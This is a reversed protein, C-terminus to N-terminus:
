KLPTPKVDINYDWADFYLNKGDLEVEGRQFDAPESRLSKKPPYLERGYDLNVVMRYADQHGLYYERVKEDDSKRRGYSTDVVIWGWPEVYIEAWDHMNVEGPLMQWGSQWRAPIGAARALTIFTLSQVGCDGKHVSLCKSVISPITCYEDEFAYRINANIWHWILRAKALENREDGVIKAALQKVEPTFVIHPPREDLYRQPFDAPLPKVAEDSINPYDAYCIYEFTESFTTDKTPDDITAEFYTTRQTEDKSPAILPNAPSTSIMKVDRQRPYDQPFPLWVRLQSGKQAGPTNAPVTISYTVHYRIPDVYRQGTKEAEAIFEALHAELPFKEKTSASQRRQKAESSLQYLNSPESGFVMLQGDIVRTTLTKQSSWKDIDARTADPMTKHLKDLFQDATMRYDQRIRRMLELLEARAPIAPDSNKELLGTAAKFNGERMLDRAQVVIPDDTTWASAAGTPLQEKAIALGAILTTLMITRRLNTMLHERPAIM